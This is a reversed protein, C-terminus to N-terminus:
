GVKIGVGGTVVQRGIRVQGGEGVTFGVGDTVGQGCITRAAGFAARWKARVNEPLDAWAPCPEGRFNLGATAPDGGANYAYYLAHAGAEITKDDSM